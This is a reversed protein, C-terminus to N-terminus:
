PHITCKPRIFMHMGTEKLPIYVLSSININYIGMKKLNFLLLIVLIAATELIFKSAVLM